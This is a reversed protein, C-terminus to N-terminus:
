PIAKKLKKINSGLASRATKMGRVIQDKNPLSAAVKQVTTQGARVSVWKKEIDEEALLKMGSNRGCDDDDDDSEFRSLLGKDEEDVVKDRNRYDSKSEGLNRSKLAQVKNITIERVKSWLQPKKREVGHDDIPSNTDNGKKKLNFDVGEFRALPIEKLNPGESYSSVMSGQTRDPVVKPISAVSSRKSMVVDEQNNHYNANTETKMVNNSESNSPEMGTEENVVSVAEVVPEENVVRLPDFLCGVEDYDLTLRTSESGKPEPVSGKPEPIDDIPEEVEEKEEEDMTHFHKWNIALDGFNSNDRNEVLAALTLSKRDHSSFSKNNPSSINSLHPSNIGETFRRQPSPISSYHSTEDYSAQRHSVPATSSVVSGFEEQRSLQIDDEGQTVVSVFHSFGIDIPNDDPIGDVIEGSEDDLIKSVPTGDEDKVSSAINVANDDPVGDANEGSEDDKTNSVPSDDDEKVSSAINVSNDDPIGDANEGLENASINSLPTGDEENVLQLSHQDSFFSKPSLIHRPSGYTHFSQVEQVQEFPGHYPFHTEQSTQSWATQDKVSESLLSPISQRWIKKAKKKSSTKSYSSPFSKQSITKNIVNPDDDIQECSETPHLSQNNQPSQPEANTNSQHSELLKPSQHSVEPVHNSIPEGDTGVEDNNPNM